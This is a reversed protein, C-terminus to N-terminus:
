IQAWRREEVQLLMELNWHNWLGAVDVSHVIYEVSILWQLGKEAFLAVCNRKIERCLFHNIHSIDAETVYCKYKEGSIAFSKGAGYLSL